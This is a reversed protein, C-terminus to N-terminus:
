EKKSSPASRWYGHLLVACVATFVGLANMLGVETNFYWAGVAIVVLSRMGNGMSHSVPGVLTLFWFGSAEQWYLCFGSSFVTGLIQFTSSGEPVTYRLLQPVELYLWMPLFLVFAYVMGMFYVNAKHHGQRM